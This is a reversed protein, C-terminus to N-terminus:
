WTLTAAGSFGTPSPMAGLRLRTIDAKAIEGHKKDLVLDWTLLGAGVIILPVGAYISIQSRNYVSKADDGQAAADVMTLSKNSNIGDVLNTHRHYELIGYTLAAAGVALTGVGVYTRWTISSPREVRATVASNTTSPSELPPPPYATPEPILAIPSPQVTPTSTQPEDLPELPLDAFGELAPESALVPYTVAAYLVNINTELATNLEATTAFTFSVVKVDNGNAVLVDAATKGGDAKANPVLIMSAKSSRVLKNLCAADTKCQTIALAFGRSRKDVAKASVVEARGRAGTVLAREIADLQAKTLKSDGRAPMIVVTPRYKGRKPAAHSIASFNLM